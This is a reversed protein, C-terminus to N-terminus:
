GLEEAGSAVPRILGALPPNGPTSVWAPDASLAWEGSVRKIADLTGNAESGRRLDRHPAQRILKRMAWRYTVLFKNWSCDLTSWWNMM